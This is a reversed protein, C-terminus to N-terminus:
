STCCYDCVYTYNVWRLSRYITNFVLYGVAQISGIIALTSMAAYLGTSVFTQKLVLQSSDVPPQGDSDNYTLCFAIHTVILRAM